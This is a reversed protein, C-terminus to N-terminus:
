TETIKLSKEQKNHSGKAENESDLVIQFAEPALALGANVLLSRKKRVSDKPTGKKAQEVMLSAQDEAREPSKYLITNLNLRHFTMKLYESYQGNNDLYIAKQLHEMAAEFRDGKEEIHAIEMHIQCRLLVLMSDTKELIEAIALLSKRVHQQLNHQLLPLCLNWQTTCVAQIVNSDKLRIARILILDLKQIVKLQAEVVSKSYTAIKDGLKQVEYDCELCELEIQKGQDKIKFKQLDSLCSFAVPVCSLRLSLRALEMLLSFRLAPAGKAQRNKRLPRQRKPAPQDMVNENASLKKRNEKLFGYIHTLEAGADEPIENADLEAKITQIKYIIMLNVSDEINDELDVPDVLKHRVQFFTM